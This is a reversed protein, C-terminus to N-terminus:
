LFLLLWTAHAVHSRSNKSQNVQKVRTKLPTMRHQLFIGFRRSVQRYIPNIKCSYFYPQDNWHQAEWYERDLQTLSLAMAKQVEFNLLQSLTPTHEQPIQLLRILKKLEKESVPRNQTFISRGVKGAPIAGWQIAMSELYSLTKRLGSGKTTAVALVPKGALVPRHYWVCTRDIFTKIQGSIQQLYVPSALIIGDAEQLQQMISTTDDQLVCSGRLICQECGLCPQINAKYLEIIRLEIQHRELILQMEMLLRYTNKKRKSGLLAVVQKM